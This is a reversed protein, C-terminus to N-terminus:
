SQSASFSFSALGFDSFISSIFISVIIITLLGGGASTDVSLSLRSRYSEMGAFLKATEKFSCSTLPLIKVQKPPSKSETDVENDSLRLIRHTRRLGPDRGAYQQLGDPNGYILNYGIGVLLEEETCTSCITATLLLGCAVTLFITFQGM